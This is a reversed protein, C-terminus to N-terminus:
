LWVLVLNCLIITRNKRGEGTAVGNFLILKWQATPFSGDLVKCYSESASSGSSRSSNFPATFPRGRPPNLDHFQLLGWTSATNTALAIWPGALSAARQLRYRADPAATVFYGSSGDTTVSLSPGHGLGVFVYAAGWDTATNDAQDGIVGVASSYELYSSIVATQKSANNGGRNDHCRRWPGSYEQGSRV